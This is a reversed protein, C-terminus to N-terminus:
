VICIDACLVKKNRISKHLKFEHSRKMDNAEM